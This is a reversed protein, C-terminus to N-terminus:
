PADGLTTLSEYYVLARITGQATFSGGGNKTITVNTTNTTIDTAGNTNYLVNVKTNKAVACATAIATTSGGSYAADWLEGGALATDVRLQVGVIRAGSPVLTNIAVSASATINATAEATSLAVPYGLTDDHLNQDGLNRYTADVGWPNTSRSAYLSHFVNDKVVMDTVTVGGYNVGIALLPTGQDDRVVNGSVTNFSSNGQFQFGRWATYTGDKIINNTFRSFRVRDLYMGHVSRPNIIVNDAVVFADMYYSANSHYLDIPTEAAGGDDGARVITNGIIKGGVCNATTYTADGRFYIGSTDAAASYLTNGEVTIYNMGAANTAVLDTVLIGQENFGIITNGAITSYSGCELLIGSNTNVIHNDSIVNFNGHVKFSSGVKQTGNTLTTYSTNRSVTNYNNVGTTDGISHYMYVDHDVINKFFNRTIETYDVFYLFLGETFTNGSADDVFRNDAILGFDSDYGHVAYYNIDAVCNAVTDGGVFTNEVIKISNSTWFVVCAQPGDVFRLGRITVNDASHIRILSPIRLVDGVVSHDFTGPGQLTGTGEIVVDDATVYFIAIPTVQYLYGTTTMTGNVRITMAKNVTVRATTKFTFGAPILVMGGTPCADIAAQIAATDDTTGDGAAGFTPDLPNYFKHAGYEADTLTKKTITAAIQYGTAHTRASTGEQARVITLDDTSRATVRVIEANATTPNVGSPWITANFPVTPFRSGTGPAVACSTGSTGSPATALTTLAFNAHADITM